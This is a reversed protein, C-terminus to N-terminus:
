RTRVAARRLVFGVRVGGGLGLEFAPALGAATRPAEIDLVTLLYPRVKTAQSARLSLGGGASVGWRTQRFPDFLFRALIDLRGSTASRGSSLDAGLAGDVGVRVYYGAPVQVGIGGQVTTTNRSLIADARVQPEISGELQALAPRTWCAVGVLLAIAARRM